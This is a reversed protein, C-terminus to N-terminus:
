NTVLINSKIQNKEPQRVGNPISFTGQIESHKLGFLFGRHNLGAYRWTLSDAPRHLVDAFERLTALPLECIGIADLGNRLMIATSLSLPNIMNVVLAGRCHACIEGSLQEICHAQRFASLLGSPGLTEDAPCDLEAAFLEDERRAELGGFRIQVIVIDSGKLAVAL